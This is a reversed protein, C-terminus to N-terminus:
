IGTWSYIIIEWLNYFSPYVRNVNSDLLGLIIEKFSLYFVASM